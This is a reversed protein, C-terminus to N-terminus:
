LVSYLTGSNSGVEGLKYIVMSHKELKRKLTALDNQKLCHLDRLIDKDRIGVWKSGFPSDMVTASRIFREKIYCYLLAAELGISDAIKRDILYNDKM